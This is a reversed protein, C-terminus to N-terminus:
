YLEMGANQDIAQGILKVMVKGGAQSTQLAASCAFSEPLDAIFLPTGTSRNPFQKQVTM